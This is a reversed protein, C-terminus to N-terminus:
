SVEQAHFLSPSFNSTWVNCWTPDNQPNLFPYCCGRRGGVCRVLAASFFVLFQLRWFLFRRCFPDKCTESPVCAIEELPLFPTFFPSRALKPLKSFPPFLKESIRNKTKERRRDTQTRKDTQSSTKKRKRDLHNGM